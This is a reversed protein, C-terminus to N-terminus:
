LTLRAYRIDMCDATGAYYVVIVDGSPLTEAYPLGFSWLGMDALMEGTGTTQAAPQPATYITVESSPELVQDLAAAFRARISRSGYRDVWALVARGDPLVAPHSPQDAFDLEDTTWTLGEDHSLHRRIPLYRNNPKDYTWSFTALFGNPAVAARQDWYFIAASPDQCVTQPLTWSQGGDSSYCYVVRQRWVSRDHYPKNTEISVALRGSPLKLIPNTLSPPGVDETVAVERWPSFTRGQDTSNAVLIKMPLCGETEVNFLPQNPYAERDVWLSCALIENALPTLYVVQLSGRVGAFSDSFPSWPESWTRGKDSSLRLETVSRDSDKSVGVRYVALIRGGPLVAISPFTAVARPGGAQGPCVIGQEVIQMPLLFSLAHPLTDLAKSM